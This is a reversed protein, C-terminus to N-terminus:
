GVAFLLLALVVREMIRFFNPLKVPMRLRVLLLSDFQMDSLLLLFSRHIAVLSHKTILVTNQAYEVSLPGGLM